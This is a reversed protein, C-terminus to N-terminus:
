GAYLGEKILRHREKKTPIRIGDVVPQGDKGTHYGRGYPSKSKTSGNDSTSPPGDAPRDCDEGQSGCKTGDQAIPLQGSPDSLSVPSSNAYAYANLQQPDNPNLLPDASLFHGTAPDYDRAGLHTLGTSNDQTGGVFGVVVEASEGFGPCM